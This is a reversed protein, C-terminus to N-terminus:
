EEGQGMDLKIKLVKMQEDKKELQSKLSAIKKAHDINKQELMAIKYASYLFGASILILLIFLLFNRFGGGTQKKSSRKKSM